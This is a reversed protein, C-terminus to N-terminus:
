DISRKVGERKKEESAKNREKVGGGCVCVEGWNNKFFGLPIVSTLTLVLLM